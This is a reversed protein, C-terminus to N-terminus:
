LKKFNWGFKAHVGDVYMNWNETLTLLSEQIHTDVTSPLADTYRLFIRLEILHNFIALMIATLNPDFRCIWEDDTEFYRMTLMEEFQKRERYKSYTEIAKPLTRQLLEMVRYLECARLFFAHDLESRILIKEESEILPSRFAEGFLAQASVEGHMPLHSAPDRLRQDWMEAIFESLKRVAGM